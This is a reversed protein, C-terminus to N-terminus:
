HMMLKISFTQELTNFAIGSALHQKAFVVITQFKSFIINSELTLLGFNTIYSANHIFGPLAEFSVLWQKYIM